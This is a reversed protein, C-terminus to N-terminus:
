YEDDDDDTSDPDEDIIDPFLDETLRDDPDWILEKGKDSDLTAASTSGGAPLPADDAEAMVGNGNFGSAGDEKTDEKTEKTNGSMHSIMVPGPSYPERSKSTSPKSQESDLMIEDTTVVVPSRMEDNRLSNDCSSDNSLWKKQNQKLLEPPPSEQAHDTSKVADRLAAGSIDDDSDPLDFGVISLKQASSQFLLSTNHDFGAPSRAPAPASYDSLPLARPHILAELALISHACFECVKSGTVQRGRRFLELTKALNPPRQHIQSLISALLVRLAALQLEETSAGQRNFSNKALSILLDDVESRGFKLAGGVTFLAELTELAAIKLEPHEVLHSKIACAELDGHHQQEPPEATSPRKRKKHKPQEVSAKIANSQPNSSSIDKEHHPNLDVLANKLIEHELNKAMGAGMSMVLTKIELYAKVRLEPVACKKFYRTMIRVIYAAWPLIQSRVGKTLAILLDLGSSHLAPLELCLLEQQIATIFFSSTQPISGDVTLVREILLLLSQMPVSVQVPYSNKLMESCCIMMALVISTQKSRTSAKSKYDALPPPPNKGPPVLLRSAERIKTEEELGEFADKLYDNIFWLIKQMLLCWTGEDGKSKPLMALCCALKELMFNSCKGSFIKSSITAEASDYHQQIASPFLTVMLGILHLVEDWIAESSDENLLKLSTQVLKEAFGGKGHRLPYQGLRLLLDSLSACSAVKVMHSDTAPSNSSALMLVRDVWAAVASRWDKVLKKDTSEGFSESLLKHTKVTSIIRSLVAPDRFPRKEDPLHDRLLMRLLRPKLAVDYMDGACDFAAM